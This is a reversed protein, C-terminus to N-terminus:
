SAGALAMTDAETMAEAYTEYRGVVREIAEFWRGGSALCRADADFFEDRKHHSEADVLLRATHRIMGVKAEFLGAGFAGKRTLQPGEPAGKRVCGFGVGRNVAGRAGEVAMLMMRNYVTQTLGPWCALALRHLETAARDRRPLLSLNAAAIMVESATAPSLSAAKNIANIVFPGSPSAFSPGQGDADIWMSVNNPEVGVPMVAKNPLGLEALRAAIWLGLPNRPFIQTFAYGRSM